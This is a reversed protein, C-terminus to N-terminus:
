RRGGGQMKSMMNMMANMDPGGQGGGRGGQGGGGGGGLLGQLMAMPNPAQSQQTLQCGFVQEGTRVMLEALKPDIHLLLPTYRSYLLGFLKKKDVRPQPAMAALQTLMTALHWVALSSSDAGGGVAGAAINDQVLSTSHQLFSSALAVKGDALLQLLARAFFLGKESAYGDGSWRDVVAAAKRTDELRVYSKFANLWRRSGDFINAFLHEAKTIRSSLGTDEAVRAKAVLVHFPGYVQDVITSAQEVSISNLLDILRQVDCYNDTDLKNKQLKFINDVGAGEEIFWCLLTGASSNASNDVMLKAAHFVLQSTTNQGLLKKKRAVFSQVYQLAEYPHNGQLEPVMKEDLQALVVKM